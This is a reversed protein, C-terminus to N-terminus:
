LILEERMKSIGDIMWQYKGKVDVIKGGYNYYHEFPLDRYQPLILESQRKFKYWIAQLIKSEFDSDFAKSKAKLIEEGTKKAWFGYCNRLQEREKCAEISLWYWYGEVSMFKGDVTEIPFKAFNSLMRGLDTKGKSYINIHTIGDEEPNIMKNDAKKRLNNYFVYVTM